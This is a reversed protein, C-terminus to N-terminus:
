KQFDKVHAAPSYDSVPSGNLDLKDLKDLKAIIGIDTLLDSALNLSELNELGVLPSIDKLLKCYIANTTLSM